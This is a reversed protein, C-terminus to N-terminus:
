TELPPQVAKITRKQRKPSTEEPEQPPTFTCLENPMSCTRIALGKVLAALHQGGEFAARLHDISKADGNADFQQVELAIPLNRAEIPMERCQRVLEVFESTYAPAEYLRAPDTDNSPSMGRSRFAENVWKATGEVLAQVQTPDQDGFTLREALYPRLETHELQTVDSAVGLVYQGLRVLLASVAYRACLVHEADLRSSHALEGLERLHRLLRNLGSYGFQPWSEVEVFYLAETLANWAPSDRDQKSAKSWGKLAKDINVYDSRCPWAGTDFGIAKELQDIQYVSLLEVDMTRAFRAADYDFRPVVLYTARANLLRRVGASWFVRDLVATRGGKCEVHLRLPHFGPGYETVLVDIDTAVLRRNGAATPRLRREAYTGQALFLRQLRAELGTGSTPPTSM